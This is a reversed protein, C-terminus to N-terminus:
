QTLSQAKDTDREAPEHLVLRVAEETEMNVVWLSGSTDVVLVLAGHQAIAKTHDFFM